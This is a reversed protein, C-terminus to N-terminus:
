AASAKSVRRLIEAISPRDVDDMGTRDNVFREIWADLHLGRLYTFNTIDGRLLAEAAEPSIAHSELVAPAAGALRGVMARDAMLVRRAVSSEGRRVDPDVDVFTKALEGNTWRARFRELDIIDGRVPDRPRLAVLALACLRVVATGGAWSLGETEPEFYFPGEHITDLLREVSAYVDEDIMDRLTSVDADSSRAHQGTVAGRWVWRALLRRARPEPDPHLSFFKAGILIPLGYPLLARHPVEVDDMLFGITRRLAAETNAVSAKDSGRVADEDRSFSTKLSLGTVIKLCRLFVDPDFAGFGTESELRRCASTLADASTSGALAQFVEAETMEVGSRNTRKFILRLADESASEVIYTLVEYERIAKGLSLARQALDPRDKRYPWGDLWGLLKLSDLVVNLPIWSPPATQHDLRKFAQAELDYWVAHIDGRPRVDPHLLAGALATLRQQGDIVYLAESTASAAIQVPGFHLVTADAERKSLLLQGVPFGRHISDFLENVQASKWRLPRQFDPVRVRGRQIWDM